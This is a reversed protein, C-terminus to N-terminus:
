TNTSILLNKYLFLHKDVVDEIDFNQEAFARAKQGFNIRQLKNNALCLIAEALKESNKIPILLGTENPIISDKCGPNDTTIIPRGCAAAEILVKPVGEGYYSPLTIIHSQAFLEPIDDRHGYVTILGLKEWHTLEIDTVSHPNEIDINGILWFVINSYSNKILKAAEVFEYVGKEKLLRCAMSVIIQDSNPEEKYSYSDLNVGSGRILTQESEQLKAISNLIAQDNTNQFIVIKNKVSFAIKYLLTVFSKTFKAKLNDATFVYGLGSIAAVFAPPKKLLRLSLGTYIVPKITIAHVIDLKLRHILRYILCITKFERIFSNGSRSFPIVHCIIGLEELLAKKDTFACALHVNYGDEIAKLAIPLRHSIFFWDVNVIYLLNKM